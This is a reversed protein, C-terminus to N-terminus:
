LYDIQLYMLRRPTSYKPIPVGAIKAYKFILKIVICNNKLYIRKRPGFKESPILLLMYIIKTGIFSTNHM